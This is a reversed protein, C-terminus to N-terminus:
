GKDSIPGLCEPWLKCSPCLCCEEGQKRQRKGLLGFKRCIRANDQRKADDERVLEALRAPDAAAERERMLIDNMAVNERLRKEAACSDCLGNRYNLRVGVAGCDPCTGLVRLSVGIRHAYQQVARPSRRTGCERLLAASVAEAGLHAYAVLVDEEDTTWYIM